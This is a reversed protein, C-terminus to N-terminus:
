WTIIVAIILTVVISILIMVFRMIEWQIPTLGPKPASSMKAISGFVTNDGTSVVVGEAYGMMCYSGQLAICKADLYNSGVPEPSTSGEVPKSEGTLISQDFKLDNSANMIRTDAPVKNGSKIVIRDGPVLQSTLLEQKQNDRIVLTSEPVMNSISAMVQSSSYDQWANFGAQIFFVLLLVIGLALNANSPDPNGLPKWSICCLVGGGLLLSGFGGFCYVIIKHFIRNPPPSHSNLGYLEQHDLVQASSLGENYNTGLELCVQASSLVHWATKLLTDETAKTLDHKDEDHADFNNEKEEFELVDMDATGHSNRRIADPDRKSFSLSRNSRSFSLSGNSRSFSLSRGSRPRHGALFSRASRSPECFPIRNFDEAIRVRVDAANKELDLTDSM